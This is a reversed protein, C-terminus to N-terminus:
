CISFADYALTHSFSAIASTYHIITVHLVMYCFLGHSFSYCTCLSSFSTIIYLPIISLLMSSPTFDDTRLILSLNMSFQTVYHHIPSHVVPVHLSSHCACPSSVLHQLPCYIVPLLSHITHHIHSIFLCHMSLQSIEHHIPYNILATHLVSHSQSTQFSHHWLMYPSLLHTFYPSLSAITKTVSCPACSSPM